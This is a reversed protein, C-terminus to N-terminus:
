MKLGSNARGFYEILAPFLNKDAKEHCSVRFILEQAQDRCEFAIVDTRGNADFVIVVYEEKQLFIKLSKEKLFRLM